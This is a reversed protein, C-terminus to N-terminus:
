RGSRRAPGDVDYCFRVVVTHNQCGLARYSAFQYWCLVIKVGLNVSPVTHVGYATMAPRGRVFRLV